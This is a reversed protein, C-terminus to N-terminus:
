ARAKSSVTEDFSEASELARLVLGRLTELQTRLLVAEPLNALSELGAAISELMVILEAIVRRAEIKLHKMEASDDNGEGSPPTNNEDAM